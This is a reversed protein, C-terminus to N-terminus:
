EGTGWIVVASDRFGAIDYLTAGGAKEFEHVLAKGLNSLYKSVDFTDDM